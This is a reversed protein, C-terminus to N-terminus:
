AVKLIKRFIMNGVIGSVLYYWIWSSAIPTGVYVNRIFALVILLPIMTILMPKFSFKMMEGSCALMQKQIEMMKEPNDKNAKIDIQCKKQVEKLEKMRNQNTSYKYVLTTFFTVILSIVIISVKPNSQIIETIM